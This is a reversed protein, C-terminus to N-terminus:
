VKPNERTMTNKQSIIPIGKNQRSLLFRDQINEYFVINKKMNKKEGYRWFCAERSCACM